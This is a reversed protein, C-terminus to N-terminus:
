DPLLAAEQVLRGLTRLNILLDAFTLDATAGELGYSWVRKLQLNELQGNRSETANRRSGYRAKWTPPATPSSGPSAPTTPAM